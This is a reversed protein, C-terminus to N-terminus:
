CHQRLPRHVPRLLRPGQYGRNHKDIPWGEVIFSRTTAVACRVPRIEDYKPSNYWAEAKDVRPARCMCHPAAQRVQWPAVLAYLMGAAEACRNQGTTGDAIELDKQM